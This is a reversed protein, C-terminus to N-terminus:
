ESEDTTESALWYFNGGSRPEDDAGIGIEVLYSGDPRGQVINARHGGKGRIASIATGNRHTATVDTVLLAHGADFRGPATFRGLSEGEPVDTLDVTVPDSRHCDGNPTGMPTPTPKYPGYYTRRWCRNEAFDRENEVFVVQLTLNASGFEDPIEGASVAYEVSVNERQPTASPTPTDTETATGTTPTTETPTPTPTSTDGEGPSTGPSTGSCGAFVLALAVLLAPVTHRM